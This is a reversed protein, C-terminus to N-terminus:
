ARRRARHHDAVAAPGDVAKPVGCWRALRTPGLGLTGQPIVVAALAFVQGGTPLTRSRAEGVPGGIPGSPAAAVVSWVRWRHSRAPAANRGGWSYRGAVHRPEM